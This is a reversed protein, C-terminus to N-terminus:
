DRRVKEAALLAAGSSLLHTENQTVVATAVGAIAVIGLGVIAAAKANGKAEKKGAM